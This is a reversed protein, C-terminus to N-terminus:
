ASTKRMSVVFWPPFTSLFSRNISILSTFHEALYLVRFLNSGSYNTLFICFFFLIRLAFWSCHRKSHKHFLLCFRVSEEPLWMFGLPVLRHYHNKKITTLSSPSTTGSPTSYYYNGEVVLIVHLVRLITEM